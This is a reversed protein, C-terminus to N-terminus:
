RKKSFLGGGRMRSQYAVSMVLGMGLYLTAVSSGGASFFPLTIGVVPLLRLVMGLNILSQAALLAAMGSCILMGKFDAAERADHLVRLIILLLLLLLAAGGIFGFEEGAVTFIFDNNRAFLETNEGKLLGLGWLRGSGIASLGAAQQWGETQAYEEVKVLALFRAQKQEDLHPWLLPVATAVAAAAAAFYGLHLGAAFLMAGFIFAFVLATGDDGQLFILGCALGGHACLGLLTLPRNLTEKAKDLHVSFSLIFAIKLLESPQFTIRPDSVPFGLWATDDTGSVNLGLPTFTLLVLVVAIGAWVYWLRCIDHYDIRSMLFALCLGMASAICQVLYGARGFGAGVAASYVLVCGFASACLCFLWLVMDMDGFLRQLKGRKKERRLM